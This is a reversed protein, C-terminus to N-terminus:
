ELYQRFSVDEESNCSDASADDYVVRDFIGQVDSAAPPRPALESCGLERMLPRTECRIAKTDFAIEAWDTTLHVRFGSDTLFGKVEKEPGETGADECSGTTGFTEPQFVAPCQGVVGGEECDLWDWYPMAFDPDGLIEAMDAELRILLYRHWPLFQPGMHSMSMMDEAPTGMSLFANVHAEVYFDYLNREYETLDLEGCISDYDARASGPDGSDVTVAKLAVFASLVERQEDASLSTWSRRVRLHDPPSTPMGWTPADAVGPVFFGDNKGIKGDLISCILAHRDCGALAATFALLARTPM